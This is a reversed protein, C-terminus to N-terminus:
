TACCRVAHRLWASAVDVYVQPMLRSTQNVINELQQIRQCAEKLQNQSSHFMEMLQDYTPQDGGGAPPSM